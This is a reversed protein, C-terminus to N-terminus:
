IGALWGLRGWSNVHGGEIEITAADAGDPFDDFAEDSFCDKSGVCSDGDSDGHRMEIKMAVADVRRWFAGRAVIAVPLMGFCGYVNAM